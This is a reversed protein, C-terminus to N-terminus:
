WEMIETKNLDYEVMHKAKYDAAIKIADEKSKAWIHYATFMPRLEGRRLSGIPYNWDKVKGIISKRAYKATESGPLHVVVNIEDDDLWSHARYLLYGEKLHILGPDTDWTELDYGVEKAMREAAEKDTYIAMISYDSYSGQTLVYVEM